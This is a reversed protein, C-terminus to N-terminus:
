GVPALVYEFLVGPILVVVADILNFTNDISDPYFATRGFVALRTGVELLFLGTVICEVVYLAIKSETPTNCVAMHADLGLLVSDLAILFCVVLEFPTSTMVRKTPKRCRSVVFSDGTNPAWLLMSRSGNEFRVSQFITLAQM